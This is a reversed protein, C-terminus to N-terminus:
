LNQKLYKVLREFQANDPELAQLSEAYALAKQWHGAKRHTDVLAYLVELNKPEREHLEALVTLGARIKNKSILGVAHIYGYRINKPALEAARALYQEAEDYQKQRILLLGLAHHPDPEEPRAKIAARLLPEGKADQNRERYLDALNMVAALNHADLSVARLYAQEAKDFNGQAFYFVGLNFQGSSTDSHRQLVALYEEVAESLTKRQAQTLAQPRVEYLLRIAEIRVAKVPDTLLPFVDEIRHEASLMTMARLAGIRVLPDDDDLNARVTRLSHGGSMDSLQSLATGRAIGPADKDAALQRLHEEANQAGTLGAALQESFHAPLSKGSAELWEDVAGAAWEASQDNHCQNCANPTGFQVSLDPRPIRLSHDRRPDVVMYTEEPMHCSVCQAGAGDPHHHHRKNDFVSPKHCQACVGNGEARLELSHPEHCNSCVVGEQYMKSQLFSGLVYVEDRIQGDAHYQPPSLFELQHKDLFHGPLDPDDILQRRSHCSGCASLQGDLGRSADQELHATSDGQAMVWRGMASLSRELGRNDADTEQNNAWEIHEEGPGHCSECAVNIESWQTDYRDELPDYNRDLNTSHCHACRSNWNFYPGTWHLVDDHPIAEDPYLHFWRQGGESEPRSDWSLSLAQLRGGSTAVLYQQLPEFGFTYAIEFTEQEGEANATEVYYKDDRRFFRSKDGYHKFRVDEFDGLVYEPTAPKMAWDHHSGQWAQHQKGHCQACVETGM